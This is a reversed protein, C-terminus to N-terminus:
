ISKVCQLDYLKSVSAQIVNFLLCWNVGETKNVDCLICTYFLSIAVLDVNLKM